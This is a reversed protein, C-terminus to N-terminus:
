KGEGFMELYQLKDRVFQAAALTATFHWEKGKSEVDVFNAVGKVIIFGEIKKDKQMQLLEGCETEYGISNGFKEQTKKCFLDNKIFSPASIFMGNFVESERDLNSVKFAEDFDLKGCFLSKLTDNVLVGRNQSTIKEDKDLKCKTMDMICDSVLVDGLRCKKKDFATCSGIGIIYKVNPFIDLIYDDADTHILAIKQNAFNGIISGVSPFVVPRQFKESPPGMFKLFAPSEQEPTQIIVSVERCFSSLESHETTGERPPRQDAKYKLYVEDQDDRGYKPIETAICLFGYVNQM